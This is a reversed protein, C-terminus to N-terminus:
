IRFLSFTNVVDRTVRNWYKFVRETFVHNRIDLILWWQHLNSGSRCTMVPDCLSSSLVEREVVELGKM